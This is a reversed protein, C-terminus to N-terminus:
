YPKNAILWYQFKRIEVKQDDIINQAIQRTEADEGYKLLAEAMQIASDHHPIMLVAFDHNTNGTLPKIDKDRMMNEMIDVIAQTYAPKNLHVAHGDAFQMLEAIEVQQKAIMETAIQRLTADTGKELEKNAMNTAGAHHRQMMVAFDEDPDNTPLLANMEDMMTEMLGMMENEDHSQFDLGNVSDSDKCATFTLLALLFAAFLSYKM